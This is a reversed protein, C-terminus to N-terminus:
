GPSGLCFILSAPLPTPDLKPKLWFAWLSLSPYSRTHRRIYNRVRPRGDIRWPIIYVCYVEEKGRGREKETVVQPPPQSPRSGEGTGLSGAHIGVM